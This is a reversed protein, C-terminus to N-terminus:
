ANDLLDVSQFKRGELMELSAGGGTSVHSFGSALNFKEVAAASDGGGVITTAGAATAEAMAKALGRTGAAFPGWEFVGMPGNWVVTRGKKVALAYRTQTKPGIDLGMSGDKINEDFVQIDGADEAFQTSCVHDVPLLLECRARAAAELIRKADSLRDTEVRSTGVRRGLAALFTYAMAGGVLITDAKTLLHEIAAMKDSVKAGGLVVVFPRAPSALADSLFRIEKEVLFGSVRPKGALATPVAVMSADPRHCTGFADNVYVDAYAALRAAFGADGKKEGKHFRLNELLLVDGNKMAAVAAAAKDDVCDTSPFGVPKGLLHALREACPKLSDEASYGTGEPRGLHSMLIARGGRDIVGRITPLAAQIRRDDTIAGGEIPVNFDVRILVRKGAVDAKAINKKPM